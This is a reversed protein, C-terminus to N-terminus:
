DYEVPNVEMSVIIEYGEKKYYDQVSAELTEIPVVLTTHIQLFQAIRKKAVLMSTEASAESNSLSPVYLLFQISDIKPM